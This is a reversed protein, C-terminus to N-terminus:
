EPKPHRRAGDGGYMAIEGLDARTRSFRTNYCGMGVIIIATIHRMGSVSVVMMVISAATGPAAQFGRQDDGGREKDGFEDARQVRVRERQEGIGTM